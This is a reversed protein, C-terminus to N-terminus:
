VLAGATGAEGVAGDETDGAVRQDRNLADHAIERPIVLVAIIELGAGIGESGACGVGLDGLRIILGTLPVIFGAEIKGRHCLDSLLRNERCM